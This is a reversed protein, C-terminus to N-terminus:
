QSNSLNGFFLLLNFHSKMNFNKTQKAQLSLSPPLPLSLSFSLSFSLSLSLSFSLFFSLSLFLYISLTLSLSFSFSQTVLISLFSSLCTLHSPIHSSFSKPEDRDLYTSYFKLTSSFVLFFM